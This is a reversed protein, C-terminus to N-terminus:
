HAPVHKRDYPDHSDVANTLTFLIFIIGNYYFMNLMLNHCIKHIQYLAPRRAVHTKAQTDCEVQNSEKALLPLIISLTRRLFDLDTKHYNKIM